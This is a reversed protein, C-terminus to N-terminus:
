AAVLEKFINEIRMHAMSASLVRSWANNIPADWEGPVESRYVSVMPYWPSFAMESHWYWVRGHGVPVLACTKVGMAGALHVTSNSVSIVLDMAAIQAASDDLSLLPDVSADVIIDPNITRFYDLDTKHDGYQLSVYKNSEFGLLKSFKDPPISKLGGFGANESVWSFGVLSKNEGNLYKARLAAVKAADPKLYPGRYLNGFSTLFMQGLDSISLQCDFDWKLCREPVADGTRYFEVNPFSRRFIPAFRRDAMLTVSAAKDALLPLCRAAMVQDGIGQELWVLVHKGAIDKGDWRPVPFWEYKFISNPVKLRWEFEKWGEDFEGISLLMLARNYHAELNDPDKAIVAEREAISKRIFTMHSDSFRFMANM